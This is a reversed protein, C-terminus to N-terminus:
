NEQDEEEQEPCDKAFHGHNHCNYCKVSELRQKQNKEQAKQCGEATYAVHKFPQCIKCQPCRCKTGSVICKRCAQLYQPKKNGNRSSTTYGKQDRNKSINNIKKPEERQGNYKKTPNYRMLARSKDQPLGLSQRVTDQQTEDLSKVIVHAQHGMVDGLDMGTETLFRIDQVRETIWALRSFDLNQTGQGPISIMYVTKDLLMLTVSEEDEQYTKEADPISHFLRYEHPDKSTTNRISEMQEDTLTKINRVNEERIQADYVMSEFGLTYIEEREKSKSRERKTIQRIFTFM